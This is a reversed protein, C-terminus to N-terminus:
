PEITDSKLADVWFQIFLLEAHPKFHCPDTFNEPQKFSETSLVKFEASHKRLTENHVLMGARVNRWHGWEHAYTGLDMSGEFSRGAPNAAMDFLPAYAFEAAIFTAGTERALNAMAMVNGEYPRATKIESGYQVWDERPYAINVFRRGFARTERLQTILRDTRFVLASHLALRTLPREDTFVNRVLRYFLYHTYDDRFLDPPVNNLRTENIAEYLLVHDFTYGHETLWRYKTLSDLSCQANQALNYVRWSPGLMSELTGHRGAGYMVSGGLLLVNRANPDYDRMAHYLPPYVLYEPPYFFPLKEDHAYLARSGIELLGLALLSSFALLAAEGKRERRVWRPDLWGRAAVFERPYVVILLGVLLGALGLIAVLPQEHLASRIPTADGRGTYLKAIVFAAGALSVTACLAGLIRM